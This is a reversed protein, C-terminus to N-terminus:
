NACKRWYKVSFPVDNASCIGCLRRIEKGLNCSRRFDRVKQRLTCFLFNNPGTKSWYDQWKKVFIRPSEKKTSSQKIASSLVTCLKLEQQRKSFWNRRRTRKSFRNRRRKRKGPVPFQCPMNRNVNVYQDNLWDCFGWIEWFEM